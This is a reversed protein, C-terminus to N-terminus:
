TRARVHALAAVPIVLVGRVLGPRRPDDLAHLAVDLHDAGARDITGDVESGDTLRVRVGSRDRALRRLVTTLRVRRALEGGPVDARRSLGSVGGVAGLPVLVSGADDKLLVWDSGVDMLRGTLREGGLLRVGLTEDLHARLRDALRLASREARGLDAADAELVARETAEAFAELDTFM